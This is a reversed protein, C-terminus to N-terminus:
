EPERKSLRYLRLGVLIFWAPLLLGYLFYGPGIVDRLAESLMGIVGTLIGLYAVSRAFVGKLMVLSFILIGAATLIGIVNLSNSLAIFSEAATALSTRQATTTAAVFQDSLYLLNGNLSPPSSNIALALVESVIGTLAGLAAYSKNLHKLALYLALFVVMAPLSLGVFSVLEAIYVPKNDAIYLLVESGGSLPPQPAVFLLILPVIILLVYLASSISGVWYLSRWSPDANGPTDRSAKGAWGKTSLTAM